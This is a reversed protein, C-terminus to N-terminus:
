KSHGILRLNINIQLEQLGYVNEITMMLDNGERYRSGLLLQNMWMLVPVVFVRANIFYNRLSTHRSIDGLLVGLLGSWRGAPLGSMVWCGASFETWKPLLQVLFLKPTQALLLGITDLTHYMIISVDGLPGGLVGDWCGASFETWKPLLQVLFLKPTQALLLRITDLTHYMIISVDGLPGGLVGDDGLLGGLLGDSDFIEDAARCRDVEPWDNQDSAPAYMPPGEDASSIYRRSVVRGGTRRSEVLGTVDYTDQKNIYMAQKSELLREHSLLSRANYKCIYLPHLPPNYDTVGATVPRTPSPSLRSM